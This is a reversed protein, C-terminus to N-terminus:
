LRYAIRYYHIFNIKLFSELYEKIRVLTHEGKDLGFAEVVLGLLVGLLVLIETDVLDKLVVLFSLKARITGRQRKFVKIFDHSVIGDVRQGRVLKRIVGKMKDAM